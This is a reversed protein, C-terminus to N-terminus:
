LAEQDWKLEGLQKHYHAQTKGNVAKFKRELELIETQVGWLSGEMARTTRHGSGKCHPSPNTTNM